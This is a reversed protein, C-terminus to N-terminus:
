FAKTIAEKTDNPMHEYGSPLITGDIDFALLKIKM